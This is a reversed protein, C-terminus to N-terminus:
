QGDADNKKQMEKMMYFTAALGVLTSVLGTIMAGKGGQRRPPAPAATSRRVAGRPEAVPGPTEPTRADALARTMATRMHLPAPAPTTPPAVVATVASTPASSGANGPGNSPGAALVPTTVLAVVLLAVTGTPLLRPM